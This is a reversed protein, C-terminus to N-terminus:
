PHHETAHAVLEAVLLSFLRRGEDVTASRPDGLVGNPSVSRVGTVTLRDALECLPRVNGVHARDMRVLAPAIALMISTEVHGAHADAGEVRPSWVSVTRSEARLLDKAHALAAINGGHGNVVIVDHAWDASRVLEVLTNATAERGISLTGTFGAHEGSSTISISPAVVARPHQSALSDALAEAIVTDTSLPLHAGHQECSGIPVVLLPREIRSLEDSTLEAIRRGKSM